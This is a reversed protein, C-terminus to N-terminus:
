VRTQLYQACEEKGDRLKEGRGEGGCVEEMM